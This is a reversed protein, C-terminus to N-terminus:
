SFHFNVKSFFLLTCYIITPSHLVARTVRKVSGLDITEMDDPTSYVKFDAYNNMSSGDTLVFTQQHPDEQYAKRGFSKSAPQDSLVRIECMNFDQGEDIDGLKLYRGFRNDYRFRTSVTSTFESNFRPAMATKAGTFSSDNAISIWIQGAIRAHDNM